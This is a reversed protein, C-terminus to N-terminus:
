RGQDVLGGCQVVAEKCVKIWLDHAELQTHMQETIEDQTKEHTKFLLPSSLKVDKTFLGLRKDVVMQWAYSIERM